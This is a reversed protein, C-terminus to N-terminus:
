WPRVRKRSKPMTAGPEMDLISDHAYRVNYDQGPTQYLFDRCLLDGNNFGFSISRFGFRSIEALM